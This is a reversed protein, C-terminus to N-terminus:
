RMAYMGIQNITIHMLMPTIITDTKEYAWALAIGAPLYQVFCLCLTLWHYLGIYGMVHIGAFIVTSLCYALLRSKRQFGQFLLGRYLAEEGIPVLFVTAFVMLSTHERSLNQVNSDNVNSFNPDILFIGKSILTMALYYVALSLAAFRLCRWPNRLAAKGSAILFRHFIVATSLFNACFYILNIVTDSVPVALLSNAFNLVFPLVFLSILLYSWGLLTERRTMSISLKM